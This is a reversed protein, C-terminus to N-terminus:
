DEKCGTNHDSGDGVDPSAEEEETSIEVQCMEWPKASVNVQTVVCSLEVGIEILGSIEASFKAPVYGCFIEGWFIKVANPDYPNTPEPVLTLETGKELDRIHRPLDHFKVGAIYFQKKM